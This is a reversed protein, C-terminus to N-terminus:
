SVAKRLESCVVCYCAWSWGRDAKPERGTRKRALDIIELLRLWNM